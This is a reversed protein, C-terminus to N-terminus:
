FTFYSFGYRYFVSVTIGSRVALCFRIMDTFLYSFLCVAVIPFADWICRDTKKSKKIKLMTCAHVQCVFIIRGFWCLSWANGVTNRSYSKWYQLWSRDEGFSLQIERKWVTWIYGNQAEMFYTIQGVNEDYERLSCIWNPLWWLLLIAYKNQEPQRKYDEKCSISIFM